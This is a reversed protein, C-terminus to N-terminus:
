YNSCVKFAILAFQYNERLDIASQLQLSTLQTQYHADIHPVIRKLIPYQFYVYYM